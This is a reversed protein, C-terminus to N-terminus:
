ICNVDPDIEDDGDVALDLDSVIRDVLNIGGAIARQRSDLSTVVARVNLGARVRKALGDIFYRATTGSGLGVITGPRVLDLAREAAAEKLTEVQANASEM